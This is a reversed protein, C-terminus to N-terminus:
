QISAHKKYNCKKCLIQINEITSSGGKAVPIIHDYQLEFESGCNVCKGGDRKWVAKKVDTPIPVRQNTGQRKKIEMRWVPLADKTDPLFINREELFSNFLNIIKSSDDPEMKIRYECQCHKCRALLSRANPSLSLISIELENCKPCPREDASLEIERILQSLNENFALKKRERERREKERREKERREEQENRIKEQKNWNEQWQIRAEEQKKREDGEQQQIRKERVFENLELEDQRLTDVPLRKIARIISEDIKMEDDIGKSFMEMEEFQKNLEEVPIHHFLANDDDISPLTVTKKGNIEMDSKIEKPSVGRDQKKQEDVKIRTTEENEKKKTEQNKKLESKCLIKNNLAIACQPDLKLAKEFCQLAEKYRNIRIFSVGQNCWTTLYYPNIKLAKDYCLIARTNQGLESYCLGESNWINANGPDLKLAADYCRIAQGWSGAKFLTNGKEFWTVAEPNNEM